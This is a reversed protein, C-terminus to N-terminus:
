VWGVLERFSPLDGSRCSKNNIATHYVKHKGVFIPGKPQDNFLQWQNSSAIGTVALIPKSDIELELDVFRPFREIFWERKFPEQDVIQEKHDHCLGQIFTVQNVDLEIRLEIHSLFVFVYAPMKSM